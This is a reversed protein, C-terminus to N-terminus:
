MCSYQGCDKRPESSAIFDCVFTNCKVIYQVKLVCVSQTICFCFISVEIELFNQFSNHLEPDSHDETDNNSDASGDEIDSLDDDLESDDLSFFFDLVKEDPIVEAKKKKRKPPMIKESFNM